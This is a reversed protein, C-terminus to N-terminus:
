VANKVFNFYQLYILNRVNYSGGLNELNKLNFMIDNHLYFPAKSEQILKRMSFNRSFQKGYGANLAHFINEFHGWIIEMDRFLTKDVEGRIWAGVFGSIGQMFSGFDHGYHRNLFDWDEVTKGYERNKPIHIYKAM